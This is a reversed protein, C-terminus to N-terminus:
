SLLYSLTAAFAATGLIPLWLKAARSFRPPLAIGGAEYMQELGAEPGVIGLNELLRSTIGRRGTFFPVLRATGDEAFISFRFYNRERTAEAEMVANFCWWMENSFNGLLSALIALLQARSLHPHYNMVKPLLKEKNLMRLEDMCGLTPLFHFVIMQARAALELVAVQWEQSQCDYAVTGAIPTPRHPDIVAVVPAIPMFVGVIMEGDTQDVIYNAQDSARTISNDTSFPRLYLVFREPLEDISLVATFEVHARSKARLRRGFYELASITTVTVIATVTATWWTPDEKMIGRYNMGLVAVVIALGSLCYGAFSILKGTRTITAPAVPSQSM